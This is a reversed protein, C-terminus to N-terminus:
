NDMGTTTAAANRGWNVRSWAMEHLFYSLFGAVSGALAIGGSATISNTFLFGILMMTFFGAVQWTVSKTILRITSDM